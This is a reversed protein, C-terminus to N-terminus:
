SGVLPIGKEKKYLDWAYLFDDFRDLYTQQSYDKLTLNYYILTYFNAFDGWILNFYRIDM